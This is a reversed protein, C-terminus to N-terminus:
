SRDGNNETIQESNGGMQQYSKAERVRSNLKSKSEKEKKKEKNDASLIQALSQVLQTIDEV